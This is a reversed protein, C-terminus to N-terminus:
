LAMTTAEEVKMSKYSPIQEATAASPGYAANANANVNVPYGGPYAYAYQDQLPLGPQVVDQEDLQEAYGLPHIADTPLEGDLSTSNVAVAAAAVADKQRQLWLLYGGAIIGVFLLFAVPICFICVIMLCLGVILLALLLFYLMSDEERMILFDNVMVLSENGYTSVVKVNVSYTGHMMADDSVFVSDGNATSISGSISDGNGLDGLSTLSMEEEGVIGYRSDHMDRIVYVTATGFHTGETWSVQLKNEKTAELSILGNESLAMTHAKGFSAAYNLKNFYKAHGFDCTVFIQFDSLIAVGNNISTRPIVQGTSNRRFPAESTYLLAGNASASVVTNMQITRSTSNCAAQVHVDGDTLTTFTFQYVGFDDWSHERNLTVFTTTDEVLAATGTIASEVQHLALLLGLLFLLLRLASALM